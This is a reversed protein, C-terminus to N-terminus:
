RVTDDLWSLIPELVERNNRELMMLHGNGHIGHEALVIREAPCGAQQLFATTAPGAYAFLSAESDVIAIPIKALRAAHAGARGPPRGGTRRWSMRRHAAPDFTMPAATLGWDLSVGLNPDVMFPPGIPEVAVIAKVLEPRADATLWGM